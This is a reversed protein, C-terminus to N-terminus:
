KTFKSFLCLLVLICLFYRDFVNTNKKILKTFFVVLDLVSVNEFLLGLSFNVRSVLQFQVSNFCFTLM